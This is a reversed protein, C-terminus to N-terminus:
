SKMGGDATYAVGTIFSAADSALFVILEAIERPQGLRRMPIGYTLKARTDAPLNELIATETWGPCVANIRIGFRALEYAGTQTMQIVGAKAVGYPGLSPAAGLGAVSSVNVISGGKGDSLMAQSAYKQGWFVSTLDLLLLREWAENTVEHLPAPSGGIAANNVLVDLRGGLERAQQIATQIDYENGVDCYMAHATGGNAEIDTVVTQAADFAIDAVIVRAGRQALLVCTERGIGAAGGTVLATRNRFDDM